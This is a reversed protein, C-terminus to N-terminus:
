RSTAGSEIQCATGPKDYRILTRTRALTEFFRRYPGAEWMFELHGVWGTDCVLPPGQGATAYAIRAGDRECFQIRQDM